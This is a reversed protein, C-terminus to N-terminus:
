IPRTWVGRLVTCVLAFFLFDTDSVFEIVVSVPDPKELPHEM